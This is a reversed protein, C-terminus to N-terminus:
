FQNPLVIDNKTDTADFPPLPKEAPTKMDTKGVVDIPARRYSDIRWPLHPDLPTMTVEYEARWGILPSSQTVRLTASPFMGTSMSVGMSDRDNVVGILGADSIQETLRRDLLAKAGKADMGPLTQLVVADATNVNIRDAAITSHRIVCQYIDDPLDRWSLMSRLELPSVLPRNAPPPLDLALYDDKEAGHLRKLDDADVYDQFVDVLRPLLDPQVGCATLFRALANDDTVTLSFLGASDQLQLRANHTLYVRNDLRLVHEPSGLGQISVASTAMRFLIEARDDSMGLLAESADAQREAFQRAADIREAFYSVIVALVATVVITLLLIYGRQRRM